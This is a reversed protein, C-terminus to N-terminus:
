ERIEGKRVLPWRFGHGAVRAHNAQERITLVPCPAGSVVEHTTDPKPLHAAMFPDLRTVSM